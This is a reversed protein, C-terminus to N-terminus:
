DKGVFGSKMDEGMFGHRSDFRDKLHKLWASITDRDAGPQGELDRLLANMVSFTAELRAAPDKMWSSDATDIGTRGAAASGANHFEGAKLIAWARTEPSSFLGEYAFSQNIRFEAEQSLSRGDAAAELKRKLDATVRLSLPIREGAVPAKTPRGRKKTKGRM